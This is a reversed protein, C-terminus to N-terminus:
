DPPGLLTAGMVSARSVEGKQPLVPPMEAISASEITDAGLKLTLAANSVRTVYDKVVMGSKEVKVPFNFLKATRVPAVGYFAAIVGVQRADQARDLRIEVQRAPEIAYRVVHLVGAPPKGGQLVQELGGADDLLQYFPISDATQLVAVVLSHAENDYRNLDAPTSVKLVIGGEAYNCSTEALADKESNGGMAKNIATCGSASLVGAVIASLM